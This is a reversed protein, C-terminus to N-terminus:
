NWNNEIYHLTKLYVVSGVSFLLSGFILFLFSDCYFLFFSGAFLVFIGGAKAFVSLLGKRYGEACTTAIATLIVIIRITDFLEKMGYGVMFNSYIETSNVPYFFGFICSIAFLFFINREANELQDNSSFLSAFLISLPGLVRASVIGRGIFVLLRSSSDWLALFSILLRSEELICSIIFGIFFLIELSSTKAFGKYISFALVPASIGFFLLSGIAAYPSSSIFNNGHKFAIPRLYEEPGVATGNIFSVVIMFSNIALFILGSIFLALYLRNRFKITM